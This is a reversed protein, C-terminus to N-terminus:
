VDPFTSRHHGGTQVNGFGIRPAPAKIFGGMPKLANEIFYVAIYVFVKSLLSKKQLDVHCWLPMSIQGYLWNVPRESGMEVLFFCDPPESKKPYEVLQFARACHLVAICARYEFFRRAFEHVKPTSVGIGAIRPIEEDLEEIDETGLDFKAPLTEYYVEKM